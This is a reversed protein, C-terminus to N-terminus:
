KRGFKKQLPSLKSKTKPSNKYYRSTYHWHDKFDGIPQTTAIYSGGKNTEKFTEQVRNWGKKLNMNVTMTFTMDEYKESNQGKITVDKDVYVFYVESESNDTEKEWYFYGIYSNPTIDGTAPYADIEWVFQFKASKNSIKIDIDEDDDWDITLLDSAGPTTLTIKFGGNQYIGEALIKDGDPTDEITAAVRTVSSHATVTAEITGNFAWADATKLDDKDCSPTFVLATTAVAFLLFKIKKM